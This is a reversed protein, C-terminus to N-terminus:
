VSRGPRPRARRRRGRRPRPTRRRSGRRRRCPGARVARSVSPPEGGRLPSRRDRWAAPRLPRYTGYRVCGAIM